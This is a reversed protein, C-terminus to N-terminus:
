VIKVLRHKPQGAQKFGFALRLSGCGCRENLYYLEGNKLSFKKSKKRIVRKQNETLVGRYCGKSLYEYVQEVLENEKEMEHILPTM